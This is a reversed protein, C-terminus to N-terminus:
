ANGRDVDAVNTLIYESDIPSNNRLMISYGKVWVDVGYYRLYRALVDVQRKVQRIPNKVNSAYLNGAATTKFKRWEFDDETGVLSGKYNKVEIIFVGYKNVIVDDLEAPKGDYEVRVNTFLRDDERMVSRIIEKAAAEGRIGARKQEPTFVGPTNGHGGGSTRSRSVVIEAILVVVFLAAIVGLAIYLM